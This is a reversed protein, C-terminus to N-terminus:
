VWNRGRLEWSEQRSQAFNLMSFLGIGMRFLFAIAIPRNQKKKSTSCFILFMREYKGM